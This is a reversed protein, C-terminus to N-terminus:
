RRWKDRTIEFCNECHVMRKYIWMSDGAKLNGLTSSCVDCKFCTAHSKIKMDDLVMKAEGAFPKHCVTCLDKELRESSGYVSKMSSKSYIPDTDDSRSSRYSTTTYVTPSTISTYEYSSDPRSYSYTKQNSSYNNSITHTSSPSKLTPSEEGKSSDVTVIEKRTISSRVPSSQNSTLSKPLLTGYLEDETLSSTKTTTTTKIGDGNLISKVTVTETSSVPTKSDTVDNKVSKPILTDYLKDEPKTDTSSRVTKTTTVTTKSDTNPSDNKISHDKFPILTDFLKDEADKTSIVTKETVVTKTPSYASYQPKTDTSSRVTKTTTVTTKSDTNPSDNKISHDKFPILTDFLKDEADKTSIVTKETVVTKTPSYASYQPGKSSSKVRETFTETMTPSKLVPSRVGQTTTITTETTSGNKTVTTTKTSTKPEEIVTTTTTTKTPEDTKVSSYRKTYSSTTRNSPLSSSSLEDQSGSFRKTLAQVSTSTSKPKPTKPEEPASSALTENSKYRSLVSRGFNPDQDVPEDENDNRKIWSNDKLLTSKRKSDEIALSPSNTKPTQSPYRSM